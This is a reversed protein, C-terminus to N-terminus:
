AAAEDADLPGGDAAPEEGPEFLRTDLADGVAPVYPAPLKRQQLTAWDTAGFFPHRM